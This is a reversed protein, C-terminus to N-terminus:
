ATTTTLNPLTTRTTAQFHHEPPIHVMDKPSNFDHHVRIRQSVHVYMDSCDSFVNRLDGAQPKMSQDKMREATELFAM